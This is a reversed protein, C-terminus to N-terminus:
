HSREVPQSRRIPEEVIPGGADVTAQPPPESPTDWWAQVVDPVKPTVTLGIRVVPTDINAVEWTACGSGLFVAMIALALCFMAFAIIPGVPGRPHRDVDYVPYLTVRPIRKVYESM